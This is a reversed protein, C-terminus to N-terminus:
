EQKRKRGWWALLMGGTGMLAFTAPEPVAAAQLSYDTGSLVTFNSGGSKDAALALGITGGNEFFKTQFAYLGAASFTVQGTVSQYAHPSDNGVALTSNLYLASGDDSGLQFNWTGPQSVALYGSFIFYSTTTNGTSPATGVFNSGQGNLFVSLSSSDSIAPFNLSQATFTDTPLLNNTQIYSDNAAITTLTTTLKYFVSNLGPTSTSLAAVPNLITAASGYSGCSLVFCLASIEKFFLKM